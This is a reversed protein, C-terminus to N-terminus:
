NIKDNNIDEKNDPEEEIVEDLEIYVRDSFEIPDIAESYKANDRSIYHNSDSYTKMFKIGNIEIEETKIMIVKREKITINV